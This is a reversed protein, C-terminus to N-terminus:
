PTGLFNDNINRGGLIYMRDDIIMYKDHMRYNIAYVNKLSIPNYTRAEINEHACLAKFATNNGM